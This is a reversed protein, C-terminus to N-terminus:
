DTRHYPERGRQDPNGLDSKGLFTRGTAFRDTKERVLENKSELYGRYQLFKLEREKKEGKAGGWM